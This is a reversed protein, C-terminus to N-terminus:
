QVDEDLDHVSSLVFGEDDVSEVYGCSIPTFARVTFTAPPLVRADTPADVSVDVLIRSPRCAEILERLDSYDIPVLKRATATSARQETLSGRWGCRYCWVSDFHSGVEDADDCRPCAVHPDLPTGYENWLMNEPKIDRDSL